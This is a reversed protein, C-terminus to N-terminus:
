RNLEARECDDREIKKWKRYNDIDNTEYYTARVIGAQSCIMYPDGRERAMEYQNLVYQVVENDIRRMENKAQRVWEIRAVLWVLVLPLFVYLLAKRIPPYSVREAPQGCYRCSDAKRIIINNCNKCRAAAM